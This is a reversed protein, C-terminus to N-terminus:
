LIKIIEGNNETYGMGKLAFNLTEIEKTLNEARVKFVKGIGSAKSILNGYKDILSQKESKLNKLKTAINKADQLKKLDQESKNVVTTDTGTTAGTTAGNTTTTTTTTGSETTAGADTTGSGLGGNNKKSKFYLFAGGGVLVVAGIIYLVSNKM